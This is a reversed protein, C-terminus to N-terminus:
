GTLLHEDQMEYGLDVIRTQRATGHSQAAQGSMTEDIGSAIHDSRGLGLGNSRGVFCRSTLLFRM